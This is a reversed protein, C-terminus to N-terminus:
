QRTTQGELYQSLVKRVKSRARHLLVRQNTATIKLMQCIEESDIGEIDRLIMVERLNTPLTDIAKEIQALGEKSLLLREPTNEDWTTPAIVWQGTLHGSSHFQEPETANGEEQDGANTASSFPVYRSERIGRTKARNTLIQFLWTKLSSRGEFRQISELVAMWTEQVVEEAIAESRVYTQALRVLGAHYLDVLSNFAEEDGDRLAQVLERDTNEVDSVVLQQYPQAPSFFGSLGEQVSNSLEGMGISIFNTRSPQTTTM